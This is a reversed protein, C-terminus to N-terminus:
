IIQERETRLNLNVTISMYIKELCNLDNIKIVLRFNRIRRNRADSIVGNFKFLFACINDPDYRAFSFVNYQFTGNVNSIQYHTKEHMIKLIQKNQKYVHM